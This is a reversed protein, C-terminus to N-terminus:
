PEDGARAKRRGTLLMLRPEARPPVGLRAAIANALDAPFPVDCKCKPCIAVVGDAKLVLGATRILPEGSSNLHGLSAECAPCKM